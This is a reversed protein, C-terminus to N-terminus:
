VLIIEGAAAGLGVTTTLSATGAQGVLQVISDGATNNNFVYTSGSNIWFASDGQTVNVVSQVASIQQALTLGAASSGAFTVAGAASVAVTLQSASYGAAATAAYANVDVAAFDLKDSIRALTGVLFGTVQDYATTTSDGVAYV